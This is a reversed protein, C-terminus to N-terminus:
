VGKDDGIEGRFVDKARLVEERDFVKDVGRGSDVGPRREFGERTDDDREVILIGGDADLLNEVPFGDHAVYDFDVEACVGVDFRAVFVEIKWIGSLEEEDRWWRRWWM